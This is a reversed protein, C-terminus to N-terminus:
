VQTTKYINFEGGCVIANFFYEVYIDDESRAFYADYAKGSEFNKHNSIDIYDSSLVSFEEVLPKTNLNKVEEYDSFYDFDSNPLDPDSYYRVYPRGDRYEIKIEEGNILGDNDLDSNRKIIDYMEEWCDENEESCFIKSGTYTGIKGKLIEETYKDNLGNYFYM